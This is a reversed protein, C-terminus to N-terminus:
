SARIIIQLEEVLNKIGLNKQNQLEAGTKWDNWGVRESCSEMVRNRHNLLYYLPFIAILLHMM